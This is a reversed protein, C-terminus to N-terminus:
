LLAHVLILFRGCYCFWESYSEHQYYHKQDCVNVSADGVTIDV